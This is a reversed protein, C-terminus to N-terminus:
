LCSKYWLMIGAKAEASTDWDVELTEEGYRLTAGGVNYSWVVGPAENTISQLFVYFDMPEDMIKNSIDTFFGSMKKISITRNTMRM